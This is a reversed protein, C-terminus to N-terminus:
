GVMWAVPMEPNGITNGRNILACLVVAHEDNGVILVSNWENRLM